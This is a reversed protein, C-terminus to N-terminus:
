ESVESPDVETEAHPTESPPEFTVLVQNTAVQDGAVVRVEAVTGPGAATLTHLMKMAELVVVAAGGAVHQGPEVAVETVAGPFPAVIAGAHGHGESGVPAWREGRTPVTFSHTHGGVNIALSRQALSVCSPVLPDSAVPSPETRRGASEHLAGDLSCLGVPLTNAHPTVRFSGLAQWAGSGRAARQALRWAAAAADIAPEPATPLEAEDLFRTTVRGAVIPPQDILWRHFGANTILGGIVLQDLARALRRRATDRDVGGVILKAIMPDYYSTIEDGEIM